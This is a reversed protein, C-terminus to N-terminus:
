GHIEGGGALPFALPLGDCLRGADAMAIATLRDGLDPEWFGEAHIDRFAARFLLDTLGEEDPVTLLVVTCDPPVNHCHCYAIAAHAAQV